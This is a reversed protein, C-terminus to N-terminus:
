LLQLVCGGVRDVMFDIGDAMEPDVPGSAFNGLVIKKLMFAPMLWFSFCYCSTVILILVSEKLGERKKGQSQALIEFSITFFSWSCLLHFVMCIPSQFARSLQQQMALTYKLCPSYCKGWELINQQFDLLIRVSWTRLPDCSIFVLTTQWIGCEWNHYSRNGKYHPKLLWM